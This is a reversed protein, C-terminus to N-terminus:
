PEQLKFLPARSMQRVMPQYTLSFLSSDGGTQQSFVALSLNFITDNIITKLYPWIHNSTLHRGCGIGLRTEYSVDDVLGNFIPFCLKTRPLSLLHFIPPLLVVDLETFNAPDPRSSVEGGWITDIQRIICTIQSRIQDISIRLQVLQKTNNYL